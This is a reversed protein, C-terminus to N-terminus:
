IGHSLCCQKKWDCLKELYEENVMSLGDTACILLVVGLDFLDLKRLENISNELFLVYDGKIDNHNNYKDNRKRNYPPSTIVMDVSQSKFKPLENFCDGQILNIM